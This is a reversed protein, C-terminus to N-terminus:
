PLLNLPLLGWLIRNKQCVIPLRKKVNKDLIKVLESIRQMYDFDSPCDKKLEIVGYDILEGDEIVAFGNVNTSNDIGLVKM